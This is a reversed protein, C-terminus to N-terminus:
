RQLHILDECSTVCQDFETPMRFFWSIRMEYNMFQELYLWNNMTEFIQEESCPVEAVM